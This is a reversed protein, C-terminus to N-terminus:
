VLHPPFSCICLHISLLLHLNHVCASSSASRVECFGESCIYNNVLKEEQASISNIPILLFPILLPLIPAKFFMNHTHRPLLFYQIGLLIKNECFFDSRHSPPFTITILGMRRNKDKIPPFQRRNVPLQRPLPQEAKYHFIHALSPSNISNSNIQSKIILKEKYFVHLPIDLIRILIKLDILYSIDSGIM